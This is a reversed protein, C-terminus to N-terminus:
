LWNLFIKQDPLKNSQIRQSGRTTKNNRGDTM